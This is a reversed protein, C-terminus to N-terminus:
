TLRRSVALLPTVMRTSRSTRSAHAHRSPWRGASTSSGNSRSCASQRSSRNLAVGRAGHAPRPPAPDASLRVPCRPRFRTGPRSQMAWDVSAPGRNARPLGFRRPACRRPHPDAIPARPGATVSREGRGTNRFSEQRLVQKTGRGPLVTALLRVSGSPRSTKRISAAFNSAPSM